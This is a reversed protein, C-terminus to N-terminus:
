PPSEVGHARMWELTIATLAPDARGAGYARLSDERAEHRGMMHDLGPVDVVNAPAIAAQEEPSVVWDHEGRLVLVPATVRSWAARLDLLHLQRHYAASRGNLGENLMREGLAAARRDIEAADVGRLALQRRTSAVVCDLWSATSTGFVMVGGVPREGALVAAVMGGVSHGFLMVRDCPVAALAARFDGLETEFDLEVCPGGESDGVGRKDIRMTMLGARAWGHILRGLPVDPAAPGYDVSECAIGQLVLVAARPARDLPRTVIARLRAGPVAVEEYSIRQGDLDETPHPVVPVTARGASWTLEVRQDAGAQRLAVGLEALTRTPRGGIARLRDGAGLGAAEAMGGTVVGSVLTGDPSFAEADSPLRAGLFARRALM